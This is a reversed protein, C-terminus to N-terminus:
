KRFIEINNANDDIGPTQNIVRVSDFSHEAVQLSRMVFREGCKESIFEPQSTYSLTLHYTTDQIHLTFVTTDHVYDLPLVIKSTTVGPYFIYSSGDTNISDFAQDLTADASLSKFTVGVVNNRINVCDPEELCSAGVSM